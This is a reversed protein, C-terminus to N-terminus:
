PGGSSSSTSGSGSPPEPPPAPLGCKAYDAAGISCANACDFPFTLGDCTCSGQGWPGGNQATCECTIKKDGSACTYDDFTMCTSSGNGGGSSGGSNAHVCAPSTTGADAAAAPAADKGGDDASSAQSSTSSGSPVAKGGCSISAVVFAFAATGLLVFPVLKM